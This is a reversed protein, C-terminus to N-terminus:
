LSVEPLLLVTTSPLSGVIRAENRAVPSFGDYPSDFDDDEAEPVDEAVLFGDDVGCVTGPREPEPGPVSLWEPPSSEPSELEEEEALAEDLAVSEELPLEAVPLLLPLPPSKSWPLPEDPDEDEVLLPPSRSPTLWSCTNFPLM